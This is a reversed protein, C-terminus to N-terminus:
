AQNPVRAVHCFVRDGTDTSGKGVYQNDSLRMYEFTVAPFDGALKEATPTPAVAALVHLRAGSKAALQTLVPRLSEGTNVVADVIVITHPAGDLISRVDKEALGSVRCPTVPFLPAQRLVDRLGDALYQGSRMLCVIAVRQEDKIRIGERPGQCHQITYNELELTETLEHGLFRGIEHHAQSLSRADIDARRSQNALLRAAARSSHHKLPM